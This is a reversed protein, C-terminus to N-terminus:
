CYLAGQKWTFGLFDRGCGPVSCISSFSPPDKFYCCCFLCILKKSGQPSFLITKESYLGWNKVSERFCIGRQSSVSICCLLKKRMMQLSDSTTQSEWSSTSIFCSSPEGKATCEINCNEIHLFSGEPEEMEVSYLFEEQSSSLLRCYGFGSIAALHM